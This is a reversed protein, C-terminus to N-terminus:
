ASRGLSRHRGIGSAHAPKKAPRRWKLPTERLTTLVEEYAPNGIRGAKEAVRNFREFSEQGVEAPHTPARYNPDTASAITFLEPKQFAIAAGPEAACKSLAPDITVALLDPRILEVNRIGKILGEKLAYHYPRENAKIGGSALLSILFM